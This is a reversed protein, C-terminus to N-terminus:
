EKSRRELVSEERVTIALQREAVRKESDAIQITVLHEGAPIEAKPANIGNQSAYDAIDETIDLEFVGVATKSLVTVKLTELDVTTGQEPEFSIEIGIPSLYTGGEKPALLVIDLGGESPNVAKVPSDIKAGIKAIDAAQVSFSTLIVALFSRRLMPGSLIPM